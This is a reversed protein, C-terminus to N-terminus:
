KLHVSKAAPLGIDMYKIEKTMMRPQVGHCTSQHIKCQVLKTLLELIDSHFYVTAGKKRLAHKAAGEGIDRDALTYEMM